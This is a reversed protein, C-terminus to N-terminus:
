VMIRCLRDCGRCFTPRMDIFLADRTATQGGMSHRAGGISIPGSHQRVADVIEDTTTPTLVESVQVPNLQTVDNVVLAPSPPIVPARIVSWTKAAFWLAFLALAITVCSKIPKRIGRQRSPRQAESAGESTTGDETM